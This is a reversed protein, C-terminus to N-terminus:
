LYIIPINFHGLVQLMSTLSRDSFVVMWNLNQAFKEESWLMCLSESKGIDNSNAM